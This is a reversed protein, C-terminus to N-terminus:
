FLEQQVIPNWIFYCLTYYQDEGHRGYKDECKMFARAIEDGKFIMYSLKKSTKDIVCLDKTTDKAQKLKKEPIAIVDKGLFYNDEMKYGSFPKTKYIIYQETMSNKM